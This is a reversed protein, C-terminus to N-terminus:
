WGLIVIALAMCGAIAPFWRWDGTWLFLAIAAIMPYAVLALDLWTIQHGLLKIRTPKNPPLFHVACWDVIKDYSKPIPIKM